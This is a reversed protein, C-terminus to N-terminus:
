GAAAEDVLDVLTNQSIPGSIRVAIAGHKDIVLTSPISVPSLQGAFRVLQIGQPDYISPYTVHAARVFAQAQARANDRINIGVFQAVGRTRVSAKELAPAEARCPPCWSGWVNLVVVKGPYGATSVTGSGNVVEGSAVPAAPRKGVAIQTINGDGSVFGRQSVGQNQVTAGTASCGAATLALAALALVAFVVRLRSTLRRM